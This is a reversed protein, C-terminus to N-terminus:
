NIVTACCMCQGFLSTRRKHKEKAKPSASAVEKTRSNWLDKAAKKAAAHNDQKTPTVLVHAEEEKLFGLPSTRSKESNSREPTIVKEEGPKARLSEQNYHPLLRPSQLSVNAQNSSREITTKDQYLLPTQDSEESMAEIRLDLDFSPSKRMQVHINLNDPNSETSFRGVSEQVEHGGKLFIITELIESREFAFSKTERVIEPAAIVHFSDEQQPKDMALEVTSASNRVINIGAAQDTSAKAVLFEKCSEPKLELALEYSCQAVASAMVTEQQQDQTQFLSAPAKPTYAEAQVSVTRSTFQEGSQQEEAGKGVSCPVETKEKEVIQKEEPKEEGITCDTEEDNDRRNSMSLEKPHMGLEPVMMTDGEPEKCSDEFDERQIGNFLDVHYGNEDVEAKEVQCSGNSVPDHSVNVSSEENNKCSPGLFFDTQSANALDNDSERISDERLHNLDYHHENAEIGTMFETEETSVFCKDEPLSLEIHSNLSNAILNAEPHSESCNNGYCDMESTFEECKDICDSRSDSSIRTADIVTTKASYNGAEVKEESLMEDEQSTMEKESLDVRKEEVDLNTGSVLIGDLNDSLCTNLPHDNASTIGAISTGLINESPKSSTFSDQASQDACSETLEHQDFKLGVSDQPEPDHSPSITFIPSTSMVKEEEKKFSARKELQNSNAGLVNGKLNSETPKEHGELENPSSAPQSRNDEGGVENSKLEAKPSGAAPHVETHDSEDSAQNHDHTDASGKPDDSDLGTVKEHYDESEEAPLVHNEERVVNANVLEQVSKGQDEDAMTDEERLGSTNNNGMENGM